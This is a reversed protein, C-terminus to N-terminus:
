HGEEFKKMIKDIKAAMDNQNKEIRALKGGLEGSFKEIKMEIEKIKGGWADEGAGAESDCLQAFGKIKKSRCVCFISEIEIIVDLKEIYDLEPAVMQFKDFSDALIAILLNLMLVINLFSGLIFYIYELNLEDSTSFIGFNMEYPTKWLMNFPSYKVGISAIYLAGFSLTTYAFIILFSYTEKISQGLLGVYFRTADFAKFIKLGDASNLLVMLWMLLTPEQYGFNIGIWALTISITLLDLFNRKSSFYVRFGEYLFQVVEHLFHILTTTLFITQYFSVYEFSSISFLMFLLNSLDLLVLFYIILKYNKFKEDLLTKVLKTTFIKKNKSNLISNLFKFCTSSSPTMNLKIPTSRFVVFTESTKFSKSKFKEKFNELQLTPIKSFILCPPKLCKISNPLNNDKSVFFLSEIFQPILLSSHKIIEFFDDRM